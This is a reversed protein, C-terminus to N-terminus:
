NLNWRQRRRRCQPCEGACGGSSGSDGSAGETGAGGGGSGDRAAGDIEAAARGKEELVRLEMEMAATVAAVEAAAAVIMAQVRLEVDVASAM